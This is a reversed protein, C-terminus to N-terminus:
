DGGAREGVEQASPLFDRSFCKNIDTAPASKKRQRGVTQAGPSDDAHIHIFVGYGTNGFQPLLFVIRERPFHSATRSEVAVEEMRESSEIDHIRPSHEMM